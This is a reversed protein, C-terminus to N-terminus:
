DLAIVGFWAHPYASSPAAWRISKHHRTFNGNLDGDRNTGAADKAGKTGHAVAFSFHNRKESTCRAILTCTATVRAFSAILTCTAFSAILTCTATVFLLVVGIFFLNDRQKTLYNVVACRTKM